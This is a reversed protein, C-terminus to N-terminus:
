SEQADWSVLCGDRYRGWCRFEAHTLLIEAWSEDALPRPPASLEDPAVKGDSSIMTRLDSLQRDIEEGDEERHLALYPEGGETLLGIAALKESKVLEHLLARAARLTCSPDLTASIRGALQPQPVLLRDTLLENAKGLAAGLLGPKDVSAPHYLWAEAVKTKQIHGSAM